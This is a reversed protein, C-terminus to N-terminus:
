DSQVVQGTRTMYKKASLYSLDISNKHSEFQAPLNAQNSQGEQWVSFIITALHDGMKTNALAQNSLKM